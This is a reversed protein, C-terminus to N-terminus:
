RFFVFIPSNLVSTLSNPCGVLPFTFSGLLTISPDEAKHLLKHHENKFESSSHKAKLSLFIGSINCVAM